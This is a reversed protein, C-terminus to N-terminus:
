LYTMSSVEFIQFQAIPTDTVGECHNEGNKYYVQTDRFTNNSIIITANDFDGDIDIAMGISQM